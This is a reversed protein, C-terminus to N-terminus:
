NAFATRLSHVRDRLDGCPGEDGASGLLSGGLGFAIAGAELYAPIDAIEVGGTPILPIDPYPGYVLERVYDPGGLSAPFLKVATAGASWASVVETPSFAGVVIPLGAERAYGVVDPNFNPTVLFAAGADHAAAALEVATVSGVGIHAKPGVDAIIAPLATLVGPTTLPFEILGIGADALTHATSAFHKTSAARIIAICGQERILDLDLTRM